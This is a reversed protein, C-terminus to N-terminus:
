DCTLTKQHLFLYLLKLRYKTCHARILDFCITEKHKNLYFILAMEIKDISLYDTPYKDILNIFDDFDEPFVDNIDFGHGSSSDIFLNIIYKKAKIDLVFPEEDFNILNIDKLLHISGYVIERSGYYPISDHVFLIQPCISHDIKNSKTGADDSLCNANLCNVNLENIPIVCNLGDVYEVFTDFSQVWPDPYIDTYKLSRKLILPNVSDMLDMTTDHIKLNNESNDICGAFFNNITVYDNTRMVIDFMHQCKKIMDEYTSWLSQLSFPKQVHNDHFESLSNTWDIDHPNMKQEEILYRIVEHNTNHTCAYMLCNDGGDNKYNIDVNVNESEILYKIIEIRPNAAAKILLYSLDNFTEYRTILYDLIEVNQNGYCACELYSVINRMSPHPNYKQLLYDIVDVNPNHKAALDIFSQALYNTYKILCLSFDPEVLFKVVALSPNYECAYMACNMGNRNRKDYQQHYNKHPMMTALYEIVCISQNNKCALELCSEESDNTCDIIQLMNCKEVLSQIICVNPNYYCALMLLTNSRNDTHDDKISYKDFLFEVIRQDSSYTIAIKFCFYKDNSDIINQYNQEVYQLDNDHIKLAICHTQKLPDYETNVLQHDLFKKWTDAM